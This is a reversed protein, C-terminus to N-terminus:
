AYQRALVPEPVPEGSERAADIWSEIADYINRLAEEPTAGDSLCGKLEPAYSVFGGGLSAALPEVYVRYQYVSM